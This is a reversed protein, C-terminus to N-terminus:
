VVLARERNSRYFLAAVNYYRVVIEIKCKNSVSIQSKRPLFQNGILFLENHILVIDLRNSM